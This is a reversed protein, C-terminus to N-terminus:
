VEVERQMWWDGDSYYKTKYWSQKEKSHLESCATNKEQSVSGQVQCCYKVQSGTSHSSESLHGSDLPQGTCAEANLQCATFAMIM